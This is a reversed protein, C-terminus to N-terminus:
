GLAWFASCEAPDLATSGYVATALTADLPSDCTACPSRSAPGAVAAVDPGESLRWMVAGEKVLERKAVQWNAAAAIAHVDSNVYVQYGALYPEGLLMAASPRYSPCIDLVFVERTAIRIANSLVRRRAGRPMEHLGYMITVVEASDAAGWTEANGRVFKTRQYRRRAIALMPESTDVGISCVAHAACSEGTGCCLDVARFKSPIQGLVRKRVNVGGHAVQDIVRTALPAIAAHIWGGPGTNGLVHIRSNMWYPHESLALSLLGLQCLM